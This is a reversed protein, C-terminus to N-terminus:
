FIERKTQCWSCDLRRFYQCVCKGTKWINKLLMPKAEKVEFDKWETDQLHSIIEEKIMRM